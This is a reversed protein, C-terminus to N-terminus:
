SKRKEWEAMAKPDNLIIGAMRKEMDKKRRQEPTGLKDYEEQKEEMFHYIGFGAQQPMHFAYILSEGKDPSRGLVEKIDDKPVVTIGAPHIEYKFAQLDALLESDDPIALDQGTAPDLAERFKWASESRQNRFQLYGSKDTAISKGGGSFPLVREPNHGKKLFDFASSGVGVVDVVIFTKENALPLVFQACREGDTVMKGEWQHQKPFYRGKRTTAVTRDKGGRSVDVGIQTVPFSPDDTYEHWRAMAKLIWETPFLQQPDDAIGAQFDGFLLQSRLPEPLSELVGEYQGDDLYMNDKVSSPIFTRSMASIKRGKYTHIGPGDVQISEGAHMIFYLLKGPIELEPFKKKDLWNPWYEYIWREEARTPPNCTAAIQTHQGKRTTRTWGRLYDFQMKLLHTVEDFLKADHAWGQFKRESGLHEVAGFELKHGFEDKFMWRRFFGNYKGANAFMENAREMIQTLNTYERRYLISRFHKHYALGLLLDTKGGGAAGGYLLMDAKSNFALTQPGPLPRWDVPGVAAVLQNILALEAPKMYPLLELLEEKSFAAKVRAHLINGGMKRSRLALTSM